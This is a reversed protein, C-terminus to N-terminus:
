GVHGGGPRPAVSTLRGVEAGEVTVVAGVAPADEGPLDVGRLTPPGPGAPAGPATGPPVISVEEGGESEKILAEQHRTKLLTLLDDNVKADRQLRALSLEVAPVERNRQLM